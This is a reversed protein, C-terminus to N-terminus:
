VLYVVTAKQVKSHNEREDTKEPYELRAPHDLQDLEVKSVKRVQTVKSVTAVQYVQNVQSELIDLSVPNAQCAQTRSEVNVRRDPNDELVRHVSKVKSAQNVKNVQFVKNVRIAKNVKTVLVLKVPYDTQALPVWQVKSAQFDMWVLKVTKVQNALKEQYVMPVQLDVYDLLDM